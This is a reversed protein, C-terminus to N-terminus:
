IDWLWSTASLMLLRATWPKAQYPIGAENTILGLVIQKSLPRGNKNYGQEIHLAEALDEESVCEGHANYVGYFSVSHTQICVGLLFKSLSCRRFRWLKTYAIQM